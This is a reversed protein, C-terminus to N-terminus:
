QYIGIVPKTYTFGGASTVTQTDPNTVVVDVAGPANVAPITCTISTTGTVVVGGCTQGGVLATAGQAFNTGAITLTYGGFTSGRAAGTQSASVSSITPAGAGTYTYGGVLTGSQLDPNTVVVNVAGATHAPTTCTIQTSSVVTVSTAASGGFTVTAGALFGTGALATVSTGGLYSGSTPTIGSVTPAPQGTCATWNGVLTCGTMTNVKAIDAGVNTSLGAATRGAADFASQYGSSTNLLTYNNVGTGISAATCTTFQSCQDASRGVANTAMPKTSLTAGTLSAATANLPLNDWFSDYDNSWAAVDTRVGALMCNVTASNATTNGERTLAIVSTHFAFDYTCKPNPSLANSPDLMQFGLQQSAQTRSSAIITNHYLYISRLIQDTATPCGTASTCAASQIFGAPSTAINGNSVGDYLNDHIGVHNTTKSGYVLAPPVTAIYFAYGELNRAINYRFTIHSAESWPTFYGSNSSTIKLAQGDQGFGAKGDALINGEILFRTGGKIEFMNKCPWTASCPTPSINMHMYNRTATVDATNFQEKSSPPQGSGGFFIVEGKASLENNDVLIPGPSNDYAYFANNDGNSQQQIGTSISDVMAGSGALTFGKSCGLTASDCGVFSRDVIIGTPAEGATDQPGLTRQWAASSPDSAFASDITFTNAGGIVTVLRWQGGTGCTALCAYDDVALGHSTSTCSTGVCTLTNPGASGKGYANGEGARIIFFAGTGTAAKRIYLGMLRINCAQRTTGSHPYAMQIVNGNNATTELIPMNVYDAATIRTGQAPMSNSDTRIILEHTGDGCSNISWANAQTLTLAPDVRIEIAGTNGWTSRNTTADSIATVLGAATAVYDGGSKVTKTTQITVPYTANVSAQPLTPTAPIVQAFTPMALLLFPLLSKM